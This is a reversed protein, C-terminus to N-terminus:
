RNTLWKEIKIELKMLSSKDYWKFFPKELIIIRLQNVLNCVVFVSIVVVLSFLLLKGMPLTAHGICDVVDCWLWKRMANSNAHILLVGFTSGGIVNIIKSQKINVNKIWIFSSIAVLVAFIKNSDDVFHYCDQGIMWMVIVSTIAMIIFLITLGGWISRRKFFPHPYLRIFSAAFFLVAFWTVYNLSVHFTPISGLVSYCGLLLLLLLMHQKKTMNKVLISLFPITLYFVLFCSVFNSAIGWVPMLLMVIRKASFYEFGFVLFVIYILINYLYIESLLKLFKKVTIKSTCMYYGTIMMFCNIGTKGWMGFLLLLLRKIGNAQNDLPGGTDIMGSNVVYHHAVIMLMCIIRYLELNSDRKTKIARNDM